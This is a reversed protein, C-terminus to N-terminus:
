VECFRKERILNNRNHYGRYLFDQFFPVLCWSLKYSIRKYPVFVNGNAYISEESPIPRLCGVLVAPNVPDDSNRDIKGWKEFAIEIERIDQATAREAALEVIGTM